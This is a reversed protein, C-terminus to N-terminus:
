GRALTFRYAVRRVKLMVMYEGPPLRFTGTSEKKNGHIIIRLDDIQNWGGQPSRMYFYARMSGSGAKNSTCNLTLKLTQKGSGSVRFKKTMKKEHYVDGQWHAFNGLVTDTPLLLTLLLTLSLLSPKM